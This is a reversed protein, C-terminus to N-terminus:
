AQAGKGSSSRQQSVFITSASPANLDSLDPATVFLYDQPPPFRL